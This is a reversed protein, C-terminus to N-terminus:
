RVICDVANNQGSLTSGSAPAVPSFAPPPTFQIGPNVPLIVPPQMRSPTYGFQGAQFNLNGGQNSLHIMGDLVHVYLGPALGAGNLPTPNSSGGAQALLLPQVPAALPDLAATSAMNYAALAEADPAVWEATFTTGRIGITASPTKM